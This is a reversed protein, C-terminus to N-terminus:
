AAGRRWKGPTMGTRRAFVRTFHSQHAFGCTLAIESLPVGPDRLLAKALEVRQSLLWRHPAVGMSQRFARSFHGVSLGCERALEALSVAGELNAALMEKARREQWAALGGRRGLAEQRLGGYTQAVHACVAFTVHEFFIRNVEEPRDFARVLSLGLNRITPDAVGRGRPCWLEGIRAVGADDAVADFAPRPFYFALSGLPANKLFRPNRQLDFFLTEGARYAAAPADWGDERYRFDLNDRPTLGVILANEEPVAHTMELEPADERIKAVMIGAKGLAGTLQAPRRQLGLLTTLRESLAGIEAV